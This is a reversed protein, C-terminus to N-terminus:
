HPPPRFAAAAQSKDPVTEGPWFGTLHEFGKAGARNVAARTVKFAVGEM